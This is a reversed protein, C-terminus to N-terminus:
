LVAQSLPGVSGCVAADRQKMRGLPWTSQLARPLPPVGWVGVGSGVKM